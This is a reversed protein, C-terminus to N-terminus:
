GEGNYGDPCPVDTSCSGIEDVVCVNLHPDCLQFGDDGPIHLPSFGDM